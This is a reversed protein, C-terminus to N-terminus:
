TYKQESNRRLRHGFKMLFIPVPITALAIFGLVSNGWGLGLRRYLPPGSLPILTGCLNRFAASGAIASASHLGFADVLYSRVPITTSVLGVGIMGTAMIPAMYHVHFETTWGYFFLAMPLILGGVILPPLRQEPQVQGSKSQRRVWIDLTASCLFVGVVCGIGLGLFSLGAQSSSFDYVSEFVSTLTTAVLYIYGYVIGLYLSILFLAPSTFLLVLPRLCSERVVKLASYNTEYRSRWNPNHTAKRLRIAKSKLIQVVYTERLSLLFCLEILGCLITMVWFCWRWGLAQGVYGGLIPGVVPGLMPALGVIAMAKGRQEVPFLDGVTSPNLATSVVAMGNLFRFAVLMHINTSLACAASFLIFLITGAHYIYFRGYLESLPAVILPGLIEGLEWITIILTLYSTGEEKFEALIQPGLPASIIVGLNVAFDLLSVIIVLTWKRKRSWNKPNSSDDEGDFDVLTEQEPAGHEVVHSERPHHKEPAIAIPESVHSLVNQSSM